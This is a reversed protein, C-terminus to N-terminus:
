MTLLKNFETAVSQVTSNNAFLGEIIALMDAGQNILPLANATTIGGIAAIPLHLAFKAKALLELDALVATPKTKSPFFRGFAVYDVGLSQATLALDLKNYCSIGIIAQPGLLSRALVPDTDNQGLHVGDAGVHRALHVDDNILFPVAYDRCLDLLAKSELLRQQQNTGKNRYQLLKAGGRLAQEVQGLLNSTDGNYEPTIAYLGRLNAKTNM